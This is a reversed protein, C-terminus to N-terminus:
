QVVVRQVVSKDSGLRVVYSGAALGNVVQQSQNTVALSRVMKGNMDFVQVIDPRTIGSVSINFYGVAPVPWVQMTLQNNADGKVLRTVSYTFRGDIDEQKLRYYSNGKYNNNDTKSYFQPLTSNGNVANSEVFALSTFSIDQENKREIYFGKNSIEQLTKWDLQVTNSNIRKAYFELGTVPLPGSVADVPQLVGLTATTSGNQLTQVFSEGLSFEFFVNGAAAVSGTANIVQSSLQQAKISNAFLFMGTIVMYIKM